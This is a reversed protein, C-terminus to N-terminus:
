CFLDDVSQATFIKRSAAIVQAPSLAELREQIEKSPPGFREDIQGLLIELRGQGLGQEMGRAIGQEMGRSMGQEMGRSMGQEMGRSMGREIFPWVLENQMIDETIPMNKAERIVEKRLKRLGALIRLGAFANEREGASGRSIQEIIRRVTGPESGFRTLIAIVNDSLAPSALLAEGDLDKIDVLHYRFSMDPVDLSTEMRPPQDGVYLVLQRPYRGYRSKIQFKYRGMRELFGPENTSQLEIHFLEGDPAEGLLDVQRNTVEPLEVNLWHLESYGTLAKLLGSGPRTIM